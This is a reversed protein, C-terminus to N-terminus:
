LRVKSDLSGRHQALDFYRWGRFGEYYLKEDLRHFPPNCVAVFNMLAIQWESVEGSLSRLPPLNNGMNRVIQGVNFFGLIRGRHTYWIQTVPRQPKGRGLTFYFRGWEHNFVELVKKPHM